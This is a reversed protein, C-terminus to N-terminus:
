QLILRSHIKHNGQIVVAKGHGSFIGGRIIQMPRQHISDPIGRLRDIIQIRPNRAAQHHGIFEIHAILAQRLRRLNKCMIEVFHM